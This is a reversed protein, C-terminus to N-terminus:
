HREGLSPTRMMKFARCKCLPDLASWAGDLALRTREDNSTCQGVLEVVADAEDATLTLDIQYNRDQVPLERKTAKAM